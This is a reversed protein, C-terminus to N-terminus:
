YNVSGLGTLLLSWVISSLNVVFALIFLIRM